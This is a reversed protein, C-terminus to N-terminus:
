ATEQFELRSEQHGQNAKDPQLGPRGESQVACVSGASLFLHRMYNVKM